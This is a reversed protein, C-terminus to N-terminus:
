DDSHVQELYKNYLAMGEPTRIIANYAQAETLRPNKERWSKAMANLQQEPETGEAVPTEKTGIRTFAKAYEGNLKGLLTWAKERQEATELKEVAEVLLVKDAEDGPLKDLGAARKSIREMRALKESELRAKRDIDADKAMEILRPDDNKRFERGRSDTHVVPNSDKSKQIEALRSAAPLALFTDQAATDLTNFLEREANTLALAKEAREARKQLLVIQEQTMDEQNGALQNSVEPDAPTSGDSLNKKSRYMSMAVAVRQDEDPYEGKMREDGMFRSVYDEKSEGKSPKLKQVPEVKGILEALKGDEPLMDSLGLAKARRKIHKAVAAQNKARGFAAIANKLDTRNKIPYSGDPMAAGSEAASDREDASFERKRLVVKADPQAPRDVASIELLKAKVMIRKKGM